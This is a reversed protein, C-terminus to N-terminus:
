DDPKRFRLSLRVGEDGDGEGSWEAEGDLQQIFAAVLHRGVGSDRKPGAQAANMKAGIGRGDDAVTLHFAGDKEAFTVTIVGKAGPEFAYKLSNTVLENVILGLPAASRGPLPVSAIDLAVTVAGPEAISSTLGSVIGGLYARADVATSSSGNNLDRYVDALAKVRNGIRGFAGSNHDEGQARAELSIISSIMSLNNMVRHNLEDLLRGANAVAAAREDQAKMEATIDRFVVVFRDPAALPAAKSDYTRGLAVTGDRIKLTEGSRVVHDFADIWRRELAPMMELATAGVVNALGTMTEFQDNAAVFRYDVAAGDNDRIMDCICFGDDILSAMTEFDEARSVDPEHKM